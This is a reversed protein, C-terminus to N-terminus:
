YCNSMSKKGRINLKTPSPSYTSSAKKEHLVHVRCTRSGPEPSKDCIAEEVVPALVRHGPAPLLGPSGTSM